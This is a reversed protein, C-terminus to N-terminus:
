RRKRVPQGWVSVGTVSATVKLYDEQFFTNGDLRRHGYKVAVDLQHGRPGLPMGFGATAFLEPVERLYLVKYGGGARWATRELLGDFPSESARFEYGASAQWAPNRLGDDDWAEYFFDAVVTQRRGQKWGAGVAFARPLSSTTDAVPDSGQGGTARRRSVDLTAPHTYSFALDVSAPLRITTSVTTSRGTSSTELTTDALPEAELPAVGDFTVPRITRDRGLVINHTLGLALWSVPAYAWSAGLGYVGGETVYAAQPEGPTAPARVEFNRLYTQQYHVGFTGAIKTHFLTALTPFGGSSQRTSSNRDRLWDVDGELSALFVTRDHWAARSINPLFFGRPNVAAMGGEGMARERAGMPAVPMGFGEPHTSLPSFEAHVPLAALLAAAGLAGFARVARHSRFSGASPHASM